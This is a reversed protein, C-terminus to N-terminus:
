RDLAYFNFKTAWERWTYEELLKKGRRVLQIHKRPTDMLFARLAEELELTGHEFYIVGDKGIEPLCSSKNCIIPIGIDWSELIPFGFGEVRSPYILCDSSCLFDYKRDEELYGLDQINYNSMIEESPLEVNSSKGGILLLRVNSSFLEKYFKIWEEILYNFNKREDKRGVFVFTVGSFSSEQTLGMKAKGSVSPNFGWPIPYSDLGFKEKLIDATFQSPAILIREVRDALLRSFFMRRVLVLRKSFDAPYMEPYLDHVIFVRKSGGRFYFHGESEIVIDFDDFVRKFLGPFIALLVRFIRSHVTVDHFSLEPIEALHTSSAVKDLYRLVSVDHGTSILSEIIGMQSKAIGAKEKSYLSIGLVLIKAM